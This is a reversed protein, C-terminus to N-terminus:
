HPQSKASFQQNHPAKYHSHLDDASLKTESPNPFQKPPFSKPPTFNNKSFYKLIKIKEDFFDSKKFIKKQEREYM